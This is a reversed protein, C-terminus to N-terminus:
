YRSVVPAAPAWWNFRWNFGLKVMQINRNGTTFTDGALFPANAPVFFTDGNRWLYDYELKMSLYDWIGWEIGAGLLWGTRSGGGSLAIANGTTLNAITIDGEAGVWGVGAKGYFLVRDFAFGFRAALTSVWSSSSTTAVITQPGAATPIVAGFSNSRSGTWDADWEAGIVFSNFQYNCGVQGGAIFRGNNNGNNNGDGFALGFQADTFGDGGRWAGGVNGGIYCGTWMYVVPAVIPARPPAVPIDAAFASSTAVLAAVVAAGGLVKKMVMGKGFGTSVFRCKLLIPGFVQSIKAV